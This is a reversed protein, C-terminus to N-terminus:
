TTESKYWSEFGERAKEEDEDSIVYVMEAELM